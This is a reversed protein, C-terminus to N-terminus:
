RATTVRVIIPFMPVVCIFFRWVGGGAVEEHDWFLGVWIDRPEFVLAWRWTM